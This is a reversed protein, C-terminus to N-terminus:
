GDADRIRAYMYSDRPVPGINPKIMWCRLVGERQLGAKELVHGSAVNEVDCTAWIRHVHELGSAWGVVAQAAETAFGRGWHRRELVYGFDVAHGRMRASIVGIAADDPTITVM